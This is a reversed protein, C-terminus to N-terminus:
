LVMVRRKPISKIFVLKFFTAHTPVDSLFHSSFEALSELSSLRSSLNGIANLFKVVLALAM